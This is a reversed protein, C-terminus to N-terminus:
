SDNPVLGPLIIVDQNKAIDGGPEHMSSNAILSRAFRLPSELIILDIARIEGSDRMYKM